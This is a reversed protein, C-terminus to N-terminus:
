APVRQHLRRWVLLEVKAHFPPPVVIHHELILVAARGFLLLAEDIVGDPKHLDQDAARHLQPCVGLRRPPVSITDQCVNKSHQLDSKWLRNISRYMLYYCTNCSDVDTLPFLLAEIGRSM